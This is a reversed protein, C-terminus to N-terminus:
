KFDKEDVKPDYVVFSNLNSTYGTKQRIVIPKLRIKSSLPRKTQLASWRSHATSYTTCYFSRMDLSPGKSGRIAASSSFDHLDKIM